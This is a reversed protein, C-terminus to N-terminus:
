STAKADKMDEDVEHIENINEIIMKIHYNYVPSIDNKVEIYGDLGDCLDVTKIYTEEDLYCKYKMNELVQLHLYIQKCRKITENIEENDNEEISYELEELYNKYLGELKTIEDKLPSINAHVGKEIEEKLLEIAKSEIVRIENYIRKLYNPRCIFYNVCVGIIVGISTDIIRHVSYELPSESGINIMIACFVVCAITISSNVNLINCIYITTIIGLCALIPNGPRILVFLFGVVGGIFTGKLRNLGVTLSSKVTTQMCVICAVAAFFTKDIINFYGVLICLMVGIGTKINRMGPKNLKM